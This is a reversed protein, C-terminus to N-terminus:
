ALGAQSRFKEFKWRGIGKSCVCRGLLALVRGEWRRTDYAPWGARESLDCSHVDRPFLLLAIGARAPRPRTEWIIFLEPITSFLLVCSHLPEDSLTRRTADTKKQCFSERDRGVRTIGQM